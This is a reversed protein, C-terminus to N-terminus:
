ENSKGNLKDEIKKIISKVGDEMGDKYGRYYEGYTYIVMSLIFFLIGVARHWYPMSISFPKFTIQFHGVFLLFMILLITTIVIRM